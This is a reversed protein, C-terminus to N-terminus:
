IMNKEINHQMKASFLLFKLFLFSFYKSRMYIRWKRFKQLFPEPNNDLFFFAWSVQWSENSRCLRPRSKALLGRRGTSCRSATNPRRRQETRSGRGRCCCHQCSPCQGLSRSARHCNDNGSRVHGQHSRQGFAEAHAQGLVDRPHVVKRLVRLHPDQPAQVGQAESYPGTLCKRRHLMQLLLQVQLAQRNPSMKLPVALQFTAFLGQHM